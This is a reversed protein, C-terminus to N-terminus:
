GNEKSIAVLLRDTFKQIAQKMEDMSVGKKEDRPTRITLGMVSKVGAKEFAKDAFELAEKGKSEPYWAPILTTCILHPNQEALKATEPYLKILQKPQKSYQAPGAFVLLDLVDKHEGKKSDVLCDLEHCAAFDLVQLSVNKTELRELLHCLLHTTLVYTNIGKTTASTIADVGKPKETGPIYGAGQIVVVRYSASDSEPEESAALSFMGVVLSLLLISAVCNVYRM